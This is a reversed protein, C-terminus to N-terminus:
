LWSLIFLLIRADSIIINVLFVRVMLPFLMAIPKTYQVAFLALISLLQVLTFLHVRRLPVLRLYRYDHQYKVPTVVLMLRHIFQLLFSVKKLNIGIRLIKSWSETILCNGHVSFNGAAGAVSNVLYFTLIIKLTQM